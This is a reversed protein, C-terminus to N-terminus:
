RWSFEWTQVARPPFLSPRTFNAPGPPAAAGPETQRTVTLRARLPIGCTEPAFLPTAEIPDDSVNVFLWVMRRERPLTWAGTLLAPTSVFWEGSWQWDARAQPVPEALRPPRAMEGTDFYRVWRARSHAMLRFFDANGEATEGAVAPDIWGLQEGFVLQQAAKMRLALNKSQGGRYARGFMQITGGYVAPFVPVQGDYQWHWTLYGDFWRIFPEGNCETTLASEPPMEARIEDLMTWYSENWWHGGGLPHGHEPDQCLAPAAAAIQDIYVASTGCEELLRLVTKRVTRQWLRTSPCMVALRVPQGDTEKSNYTEVFPQGDAQKTAAGLAERTFSFDREARDHTDWLRGNIYPMTFVGAKELAAVGQEFGLKTPFYHPYDNDFPIEHWNYWHFGVPLELYKQFALVNSVCDAPAGGTQAWANLNRFWAPTSPTRGHRGRPWWRAERRAWDKYIMAADFWDGRLLQWVAEGSLQFGNGALGLNPAPHEFRLLVAANEPDSRVELNKTSGWPDHVACYLGAPQPTATYAALLQMACWGGPYSGRYQFPRRWLNTQYEGPGRPFLVGGDPGLDAVAVQPFLARLVTCNPMKQDVRFQWHWASRAADATATATVELGAFAPDTPEIWRAEIGGAGRGVRTRSWGRDAEIRSENTSNSARVVLTFLPAPNTACLEVSRALDFLSEIRVGGPVERLALACDGAARIGWGPPAQSRMLRAAAAQEDAVLRGALMSHWRDLPKPTADSAFSQGPMVVVLVAALFAAARSFCTQM